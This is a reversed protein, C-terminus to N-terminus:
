EIFIEKPVKWKNSSPLKIANKTTMRKYQRQSPIELSTLVIALSQNGPINGLIGVMLKADGILFDFEVKIEGLGLVELQHTIWVGHRKGLVKIHQVDYISLPIRLGYNTLAYTPDTSGAVEEGAMILSGELSFFAEPGAAFMSNHPSPSGSWAFLGRDHSRQLIEVQLRHFAMQGEGYAISFPINFIGILCYAKDEVRTTQRRSVWVMRERVNIIGPKFNLLQVEPIGTIQSIVKWLPIGLETDPIKDNQKATLPRWLQSFFKIVKPALLEQLTWGRTFWADNVMTHPETTDSLHVICIHSNRYWSFMSRISEELETSSQKNICATDLWVYKCNCREAAECFKVLKVFDSAHHDQDSMCECIEKMKQFVECGNRNPDSRGSFNIAHDLIAAGRLEKLKEPSKILPIFGGASISKLKSLDQFTLEGDVLWRHSFIAYRTEQKVLQKIYEEKPFKGDQSAIYQHVIGNISPQILQKVTSRHVLRMDPLYLLYIPLDNHIHNGIFNDV